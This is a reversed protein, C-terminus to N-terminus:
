EDWLEARIIEASAPNIDYSLLMRKKEPIQREVLNASEPTYLVMDVERVFLPLSKGYASGAMLSGQFRLQLKIEETLISISADESTVLGLTQIASREVLSVLVDPSPHYIIPLLLVQGAENKFQRYFQVPIFLADYNAAKAVDAITITTSKVGVQDKIARAIMKAHEQTQGVTACTNLREPWDMFTLQEEFLAEIETEDLGWGILEELLTRMKEAGKELRDTKELLTNQRNVIFGRGQESRLLGEETLTHYAKRVTHFSADLQRGLERTSPLMDGVQFQKTAILLRIRDAIHKASKMDPIYPQKDVVTM